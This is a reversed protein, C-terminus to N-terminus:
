KAFDGIRVFYGYRTPNDPSAMVNEVLDGFAIEVREDPLASVSTPTM